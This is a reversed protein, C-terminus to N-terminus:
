SKPAKFYSEYRLPEGKEWPRYEKAFDFREGTTPHSYRLFKILAGPRPYAFDKKVFAIETKLFAETDRTIELGFRDAEHEMHRSFVLGAPTLVFTFAGLLIAVLPLSAFDSVADIRLRHRFRAITWGASLYLLYIGLSTLLWYFVIGQAVHQLVFHGMEHGMVSVVEDPGLQKLLTDWLVIRKTGAFGTVYANIKETDVSKNVEYVRASEIGTRSALDLIRGELAKDKMPGFDNFLPNIWVPTVLMAFCFWPLCLASTVLWWRKPYRMVLRFPVWLVASAVVIGLLLEKLEDTIWKSFAQHSLGFAHDRVFGTLFALPLDMAFSYLTYGAIYIVFAFYWKKGRRWALDRLRASWGALLFLGPVFIGWVLWGLWAAIGIHYYSIAEPTPDPLQLESIM